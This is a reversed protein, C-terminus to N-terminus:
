VLAGVVVGLLAFSLVWNIIVAWEMGPRAKFYPADIFLPILFFPIGIYLGLQLGKMSGTVDAGFDLKKYLMIFALSIIYMGVGATVFRVPTLKVVNEDGLSNKFLAGYCIIGVVFLVLLGILALIFENM